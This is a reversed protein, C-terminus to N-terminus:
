SIWTQTTQFIGETMTLSQGGDPLTLGNFNQVTPKAEVGWLTRNSWVYPIDAGFRKAITQYAKVRTAPDSKTRGEELATQIENDKNRAFNLAFGGIPGATPISWWVYNADPDPTAFQRWTYAQYKGLLANTIFQVQEVQKLTTKIGAQQWMSQLLQIAQLNRATNTTGLEFSLPKNNAATYAAVAQKAKNLDFQPYGTAAAFKSGAPFPGNSSEVLGYNIVKNYTAKDTAYALAQRAHLDTFPAAATNLMVFEMSPEGITNKSDDIAVFSSDGRFNKVNLPDSSHMIDITGSRLSAERSNPDTITHYEVRDLYPMGQRWYNPNKVAYFHDQPVWEGFKFPGTGIPHQGGKPDSLTKPSPVFGLQGTLYYPFPVWPQNMSVVVTMADSLTTHDLPALAPGTLLSKKLADLSNKIDAGTCPTGDHFMVNPRMVITWQTYDANPTVSKALYPKPVGKSDIQTLADYVTRAYMLGSTDFQGTTPNFSNFDAELGLRLTGGMKPTASNRGTVNGASPTGGKGPSSGCAALISSASGGLVVAGAATKASNSIFTRRDYSKTVIGGTDDTVPCYGLRGVNGLM